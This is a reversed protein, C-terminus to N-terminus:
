KKFFSEFTSSGYESNTLKIIEAITYKKEKKM